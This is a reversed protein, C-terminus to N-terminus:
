LAWIKYKLFFNTSKEFINPMQILTKGLAYLLTGALIQTKGSQTEKRLESELDSLIWLPRYAGLVLKLSIVFM